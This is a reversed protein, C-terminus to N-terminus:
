EMNTLHELISSKPRVWSEITATGLPTLFLFCDRREVLKQRIAEDVTDEGFDRLYVFTLFGDNEQM